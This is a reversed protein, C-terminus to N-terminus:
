RAELDKKKAEFEEKGIEGKVYREKLIELSRDHWPGHPGYYGSWPGWGWRRRRIASVIICIILAWFLLPLIHGLGYDYGWYNM